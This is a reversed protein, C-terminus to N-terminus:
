RIEVDFKKLATVLSALPLGIINWSDGEICDIWSAAGSQLAYGAAMRLPEGSKVYREIEADSVRRMHVRTEVTQTHRKGTKSDIIALGSICEHWTGRLKKLVARAEAADRPKGLLKDKFVVFTDAGIVLANARRKAVAEAKGLAMTVALKKPSMKLTMDEEYGSVEVSFPLGVKELAAKRNPSQSALIIKRM